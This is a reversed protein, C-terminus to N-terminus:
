INLLHIIKWLEVFDKTGGNCLNAMWFNSKNKNGKKLFSFKSLMATYKSVQCYKPLISFFKDQLFTPNCKASKEYNSDLLHTIFSFDLPFKKSTIKMKCQLPEAWLSRGCAKRQHASPTVSYPQIDTNSLFLCGVRNILFVAVFFLM